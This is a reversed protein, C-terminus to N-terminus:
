RWDFGCKIEGSDYDADQKVGVRWQVESRMGVDFKEYAPATYTDPYDQWIEGDRGTKFQITVTGSFASDGVSRVSLYVEKGVNAPSIPNTWYGDSGPNGDIYADEYNTGSYKTNSM